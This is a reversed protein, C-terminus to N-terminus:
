DDEALAGADRQREAEVGDFVGLMREREVGHLIPLELVVAGLVPRAEAHLVHQM